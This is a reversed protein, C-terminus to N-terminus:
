KVQKYDDKITLDYDHSYYILLPQDLQKQFERQRSHGAVTGNQAANTFQLWYNTKVQIGRGWEDTDNLADMVGFHDHKRMRRNQMIEINKNGRLGASCGQSMDNMILIQKQNEQDVSGSHDRIAIASTKPYYNASITNNSTYIWDRRAFLKKPIM